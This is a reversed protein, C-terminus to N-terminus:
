CIRTNIIMGTLSVCSILGVNEKGVFECLRENLILDLADKQNDPVAPHITFGARERIIKVLDFAEQFGEANNKLMVLAEAKM